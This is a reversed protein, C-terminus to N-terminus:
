WFKMQKLTGVLTYLDLLQTVYPRVKFPVLKDEGAKIHKETAAHKQVKNKGKKVSFHTTCWNCQARTIDPVYAAIWPFETSWERNFHCVM